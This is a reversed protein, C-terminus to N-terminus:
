VAQRRALGAGIGLLGIGLLALIGPAPVAQAGINTTPSVQILSLSQTGLDANIGFYNVFADFVSQNAANTANQVGNDQLVQLTLQAETVQFIDLPSFASFLSESRDETYFLPSHEILNSQLNVSGGAGVSPNLSGTNPTLLGTGSIPFNTLTTSSLKLDGDMYSAIDTGDSQSTGGSLPDLYVNFALLNTVQFTGSNDLIVGEGQIFATVECTSNLCGARTANTATTGSQLNLVLYNTFTSGATDPGGTTGFDSFEYGTWNLQNINDLWINNGLDVDFSDINGNTFDLTAFANTSCLALTASAAMALALKKPTPFKM